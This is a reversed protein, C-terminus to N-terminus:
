HCEVHARAGPIKDTKEQSDGNVKLASGFRKPIDRLGMLTKDKMPTELFRM